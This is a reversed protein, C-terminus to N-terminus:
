AAAKVDTMAFDSGKYLLPLDLFKATAYSFVDGFNLAAPHNGKGFRRYAGTAIFSIEPTAPVVEIGAQELFRRLHKESSGKKSDLLIRTEVFSVASFYPASAALVADLFREAEPEDFFIACVASTDIVV